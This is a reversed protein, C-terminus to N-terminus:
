HACHYRSFSSASLSEKEVGQEMGYRRPSDVCGLLGSHGDKVEIITSNVARLGLWGRGSM